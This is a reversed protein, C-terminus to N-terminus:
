GPSQWGGTAPPTSDRFAKDLSQLALPAVPGAGAQCLLAQMLSPLHWLFMGGSCRPMLWFWAWAAGLPLCLNAQPCTYGCQVSCPPVPSSGSQQCGERIM